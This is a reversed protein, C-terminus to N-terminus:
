TRDIGYKRIFDVYWARGTFAEWEVTLRAYSFTVEIGGFDVYAALHGNATERAESDFLYLHGISDLLEQLCDAYEVPALTRRPVTSILNGESDCSSYGATEIKEITVGEFTARVPEAEMDEPQDNLSNDTSVNVSDLECIVMGNQVILSTVECDHVDFTEFENISLYKM